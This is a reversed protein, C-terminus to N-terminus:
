TFLFELSLNKNLPSEGINKTPKGKQKKAEQPGIISDRM